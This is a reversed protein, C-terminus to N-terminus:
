FFLVDGRNLGPHAPVDSPARLWNGEFRSALLQIVAHVGYPHGHRVANIRQRFDAHTALTRHGFGFCPLNPVRDDILVASQEWLHAVDNVEKGVAAYRHGEGVAAMGLEPRHGLLYLLDAEITSEDIM